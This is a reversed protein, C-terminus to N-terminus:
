QSAFGEETKKNRKVRKDKGEGDLMLELREKGDDDHWDRQM